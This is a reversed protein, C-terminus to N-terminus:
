LRNKFINKASDAFSCALNAYADDVKSEGGVCM